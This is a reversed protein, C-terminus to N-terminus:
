QKKINNFVTIVKKYVIFSTIIISIIIGALLLWPSTGLKKDLFRGALTFLVLPIVISYGLEWAFALTSWKNDKETM